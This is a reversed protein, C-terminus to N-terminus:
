ITVRVLRTKVGCISVRVDCLLICGDLLEYLVELGCLIGVADRALLELTGNLSSISSLLGGNDGRIGGSCSCSRYTRRGM